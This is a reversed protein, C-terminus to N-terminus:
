RSGQRRLADAVGGSVSPTPIAAPAHVLVRAAAVHVLRQAVALAARRADRDAAAVLAAVARAVEADARDIATLAAAVPILDASTDARARAVAVAAREIAGWGQPTDPEAVALRPGATRPLTGQLRRAPDIRAREAIPRLLFRRRDFAQQLFRLAEREAVLATTTDGATLRAEARSMARTADLLASQGQNQQRGEALDPAQAAEEVEDQVEGGMLFVFEARVMRQEIALGQAERLRTADDFRARSAHLRETKVIVMQQSIAQRQDPDVDEGGGAASSAERLAGIEVVFAESEVLAAGPRGDSAVGRYVVLDGDELDMSALPLTAAATWEAATRRTAAVPLDHDAFTFSEGSGSVRTYRLRLSTLAHDDTAELRVALNAAPKALRRDRAPETVRIAPPADPIVEVVLLRLQGEQGRRRPALTWIGGPPEDLTIRAEGGATPHEVAAAGERAVAITEADTAVVVSVVAGAPVAVRNADRVVRHTGGLYAPARVDVAVGSIAPEVPQGGAALALARRGGPAPAPRGIAIVGLTGALVIAAAVLGRGAVHHTAAPITELRAWAAAAVPALFRHDATAASHKPPSSSTTWRINM